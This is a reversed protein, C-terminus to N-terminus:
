MSINKTQTLKHNKSKKKHQKSKNNVSDHVDSIQSIPYSQGHQVTSQNSKVEM